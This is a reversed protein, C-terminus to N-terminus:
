YIEKIIKYSRIDVALNDQLAQGKCEFGATLTPRIPVDSNILQYEVNRITFYVISNTKVRYNITDILNDTYRVVVIYEKPYKEVIQEPQTNTSCSYLGIIILLISIYLKM